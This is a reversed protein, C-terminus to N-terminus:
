TKSKESLERLHTAIEKSDLSSIDKATEETVLKRVEDGIKKRLLGLFKPPAIIRVKEYRHETRAKELYEGITKAFLEAEHEVADVRPTTSHGRYQHGQGYYRGQADTTLERNSSKGVPNILDQMERIAGMSELAEFIRARSSDATLIWTREM